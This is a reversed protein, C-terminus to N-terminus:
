VWRTSAVWAYAAFCILGGLVTMAGATKRYTPSLTFGLKDWVLVDLALLKTAAPQGVFWLGGLVVLVLGLLILM